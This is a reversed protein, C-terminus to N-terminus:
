IIGKLRKIRYSADKVEDFEYDADKLIDLFLTYQEIAKDNWNSREYAIGLYYHMKINWSGTILRFYDYSNLQSELEKVAGALNEANLHALGLLYHADFCRNSGEDLLFKQINDIAMNFDGAYYGISGIDFLYQRAAVNDDKINNWNAEILTRAGAFDGKLRLIYSEWYTLAAPSNLEKIIDIIRHIEEIALENRNIDEYLRVKLTRIRREVKEAKDKDPGTLCNDLMKLAQNIKGQQVLVLSRYYTSLARYGESEVSALQQYLSDAKEYERKFLAMHGLNSISNYFDPKKDLSIQYSRIAEDIKGNIAYLHGRTNYPNAEDPAIEIYKDIAWISSDINQLEDYAFALLNYANRARPDIEIVKYLYPISERQKLQYFYYKGILFYADKEDPYKEVIEQAITRALELDNGIEAQRCLIYSKELSTANNSYEIAKDIYKQDKTMSLYYYAMAFTSDYALASDFSSIAEYYYLKQVKDVGDLYYKYAKESTTTIESVPRDTEAYAEKPLLLDKKIEASLRDILNFISEGSDGSVKQSSIIDGSEVDILESSIILHPSEQLISGNIMWRADAKKAIEFSHEKNLNVTSDANMQQLLLNLRESSVVRLYESESLDSILLNSSIEGLHLSDDSTSLNNFYFIALRNQAAMAEKTPEFELHWPKVLLIFLIIVAIITSPILSKWIHRPPRSESAAEKNDDYQEFLKRLDPDFNILQSPEIFSKVQEFCYDCEYLHVEFDARDKPELLNHEYLPLMEKFKNNSCHSM